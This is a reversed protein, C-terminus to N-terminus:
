IEVQTVKRVVIGGTILLAAGLWLLKQGTPDHFLVAVYAPTILWVVGLLVLPLATLIWGTLRGQATSTRVEGAVRMRERIVHATQELIVILDGGTEKQILLATVVFRLDQSPVRQVMALLADRLPVGLSQEGHVAALESRVPERAQESTVEITQQISHGAQLARSMLEIADPLADDFAGLRRVRRRRLWVIPLSGCVAGILASGIAGTGALLSATGGLLALTGMISLLTAASWGSKSERLLTPLWAGWRRDALRSETRRVLASDETTERMTATENAAARSTSRIAQLRRRVQDDRRPRQLLLLAAAVAAFIGLFVLVLLLM